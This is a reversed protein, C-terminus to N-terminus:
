NTSFIIRLNNLLHKEKKEDSENPRLNRKKKKRLNSHKIGLTQRGHDIFRDGM